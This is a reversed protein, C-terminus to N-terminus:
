PNHDINDASFHWFPEWKQKASVWVIGDIGPSRRGLNETVRKAKASKVIRLQLRFVVHEVHKWNISTWNNSASSAGGQEHALTMQREEYNRNETKERWQFGVPRPCEKSGPSLCGISIMVILGESKGAERVRV